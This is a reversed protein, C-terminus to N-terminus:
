ISFRCACPAFLKAAEDRPEIQVKSSSICRQGFLKVVNRDGAHRQEASKEPEGKKHEECKTEDHKELVPRVIERISELFFGSAYFRKHNLLCALRFLCFLLESSPKGNNWLSLSLQLTSTDPPM